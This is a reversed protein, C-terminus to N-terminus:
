SIPAGNHDLLALFQRLLETPYSLDLIASLMQVCLLVFTKRLSHAEFVYIFYTILRPELAAHIGFIGQHINMSTTREVAIRNKIFSEGCSSSLLLSPLCVM